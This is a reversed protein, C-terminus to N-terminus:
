ILFFVKESLKKDENSKAQNLLKNYSLQLINYENELTENKLILSKLNTELKQKEEILCCKENQFANFAQQLEVLKEKQSDIKNQKQVLKMQVSNAVQNLQNEQQNKFLAEVQKLL